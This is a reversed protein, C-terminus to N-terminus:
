SLGVMGRRTTMVTGGDGTTNDSTGGDGTKNDHCCFPAHHSVMGRKTTM